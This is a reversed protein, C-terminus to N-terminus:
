SPLRGLKAEHLTIPGVSHYPHFTLKSTATTGTPARGPAAPRRLAARWAAFAPVFVETVASCRRSRKSIMSSRCPRPEVM